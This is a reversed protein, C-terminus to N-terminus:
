LSISKLVVVCSDPLRRAICYITITRVLKKEVQYSKKVHEEESLQKFRGQLEAETLNSGAKKQGVLSPKEVAKLQSVMRRANEEALALM